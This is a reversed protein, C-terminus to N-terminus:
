PASRCTDRCVAGAEPAEAAAAGTGGANKPQFARRPGVRIRAPLGPGVPTPGVRRRQCARVREDASVTGVGAAIVAAAALHKPNM